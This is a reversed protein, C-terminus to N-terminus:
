RWGFLRKFFGASKLEEIQRDRELVQREADIRREEAQIRQEEAAFAEDARKKAEQRMQELAKETAVRDQEAARAREEAAQRDAEAQEARHRVTENDAELLALQISKESLALHEDKVKLLEEQLTAIKRLLAKNEGELREIEEDKGAQYIVVPNKQRKGDLFAVADEDLFQQRGDKILHEGLEEAYRVVQQRVAEYSINNNKAYEKLSIVNM